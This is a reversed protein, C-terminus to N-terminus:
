RGKRASRHAWVSLILGLAMFNTLMFSSGYSVFPLPIGVIPMLGCTMGINELIQFVWMGVCGMVILSGFHDDARAAVWFSVGILAAYLALLLACGVFGLEEALVCFIFDTPAEPLFGLTSQTAQYLGKGLLGGSGIAIKAQTLNYGAGTPDLSEDTFVLLRNMQYEKLLVDGGFAEDLIPDLYIVLAIAAAVTLVTIVLWKWSVGGTFFITLGIAFFVLGTGLDPQLMICLLLAILIGLCKLYERGSDLRGRHKSVFAAMVVITLIKAPEAPQIRQGFLNIWSRAGNVEEGIIPLLPSLVLLFDIILLPVVLVAFRHYDLRWIIVMLVMGIAVGLLQRNFSYLESYLESEFIASRVILLGYASLAILVILLPVNVVSFIRRFIGRAGGSAPKSGLTEIKPVVPM